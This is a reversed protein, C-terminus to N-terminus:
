KKGFVKKISPAVGEITMIKKVMCIPISTDNRKDGDIFVEGVITVFKKTLKVVVGFTVAEYIKDGEAADTWYVASVNFGKRYKNKRM